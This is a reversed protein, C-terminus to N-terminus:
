TWDSDGGSDTGFDSGFDADTISGGDGFGGADPAAFDADSL